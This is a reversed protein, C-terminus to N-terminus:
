NENNLHRYHNTVPHKRYFDKKDQYMLEDAEAIIRNLEKSSKSWRSGIAAQCLPDDQFLSKLNQVLTEFQEEEIGPCLIVFEDGGIRYFNGIQFTSRIRQACETLVHDGYAHGYHDNIDKLGNVDLYVIGVSGETMAFKQSDEIYRNRNYFSTLTDFYSLHALQKQSESHRKALMIFYCLTQLLTAINQLKDPPPNDVGLFGALKGDRELPAAVLSTISQRQLFSYEEPFTLRLSEPDEIILCNQDKFCPLWRESMSLPFVPYLEKMSKTGESCWEYDNCLMGDRISVIYARDASLFTGLQRLVLNVAKSISSEQYLTRVCETIMKEAELTYKLLLKEKESETMDFAIELRVHRGEWDFLRDKLLYHCGTLPNTHEWTYIEGTKLFANTCFECPSDKGQLAKYCKLGTLDDLQFIKRGADNLFLLEYTDTDALYMLESIDNMPARLEMSMRELYESRKRNAEDAELIAKQRKSQLSSYWSLLVSLLVFACTLIFLWQEAAKINQETYTEAACVAEDALVFFAESADYLKEPSGGDRVTAIEEKLVAWDEKMQAMLNQFDSSGLRILGNDGQGTMLETIISDIRAILADNANHNLEQKVLRQSAGRVVGTYNIVRANGQLRYISFFSLFSSFILAATLIVPIIKRQM